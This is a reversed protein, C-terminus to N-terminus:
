KRHTQVRTCSDAQVSIIKSLTANLIKLQQLSVDKDVPINKPSKLLANCWKQIIYPFETEDYLELMPYKSITDRTQIIMVGGENFVPRATLHNLERFINIDTQYFELAQSFGLPPYQASQNIRIFLNLFYSYWEEPANKEVFTQEFNSIWQSMPKSGGSIATEIPDIVQTNTQCYLYVRGNRLMIVFPCGNKITRLYVLLDMDPYRSLIFTQWIVDNMNDAFCVEPHFPLESLSYNSIKQFLLRWFLREEHPIFAPLLPLEGQQQFVYTEGYITKERELLAKEFAEKEKQALKVSNSDVYSVSQSTTYVITSGCALAPMMNIILTSNFLKRIMTLM